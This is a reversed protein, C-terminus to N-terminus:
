RVGMRFRLPPQLVKPGPEWGKAQVRCINRLIQTNDCIQFTLYAGSCWKRKCISPVYVTNVQSAENGREQLVSTRVIVSLANPISVKEFYSVAVEGLM